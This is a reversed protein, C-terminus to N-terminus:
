LWGNLIGSTMGYVRDNGYIIQQMTGNVYYTNCQLFDKVSQHVARVVSSDKPAPVRRDSFCFTFPDELHKQRQQCPVRCGIWPEIECRYTWWKRMFTTHSANLQSILHQSANYTNVQGVRCENFAAPLIGALGGIPLILSVIVSFLM